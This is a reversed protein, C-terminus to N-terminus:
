DNLVQFSEVDVVNNGPGYAQGAPLQPLTPGVGQYASPPATKQSLQVVLKTLDTASRVVQHYEEHSRGRRIGGRIVAISSAIALLIIVSCFTIVLALGVPDGSRALNIIWIILGVVTLVAAGIVKNGM